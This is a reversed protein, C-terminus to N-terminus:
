DDKEDLIERIKLSIDMRSFPKHIFNLGEGLIGRHAIVNRTYGSMYLCKINPFIQSVAQALERGNMSPMVVDTILLDIKVNSPNCIRMAEEPTNATLVTYGLRELMIKVMRLISKEDEVLLITEVGKQFKEKVAVPEEDQLEEYRPIYLKFTTGQGPESYVNIFGNNQKIIGYVTALGLGTGEGQRKTTFFPEFLKNLTEKDMGCGNDSVGIFVYEGPRFGNHQRCYDDDLLINDTEITIKGVDDIADRANVCLNALIQDIQSPDIKVSWLHKKPRWLLDIDEGILRKLMKFMGDIAHNPNFIKPSVTQKRAFALLQGTLDASRLAAKKIECITSFLPSDPDIDDQVLEINGLIISLMNNFDHAVGGALRGVSEMKQAQILQQQLEEKDQEAKKQETIDRFEVTRVEKGKYPINKAELRMPFQEGNKRLGFAEYPKEYGSLINDMVMSRSQEAILQLGDMGTLEDLSYGTMDSLGQNCDIIIGKDHIGIGGFSANHLAKFRAESERLSEEVAKRDTVDTVISEIAILEGNENRIGVNRQHIWKTKDGKYLIKYEFSPDLEGKLMRVWKEKCYGYFDPHIIDRILMLNTYWTEPPVGFITESAPSVYEYKGDPLSMRYIMDTANDTLRRYKEENRKLEARTKNFYALLMGLAIVFELVAGLLYGWPAFWAVPRLFPYDVKHVGWLIYAIGVIANEKKGQNGSRLFLIGTSIYIAALFSFTPLTIFLFSFKQVTSVFVWGIIGVSLYIWVTPFKKNSYCYTGWLLMIGSVLTSLQNAILFFPSIYGKIFCLMFVFRTTYIAWSITWIGLYKKNDILYLYFYTFLLLITGIMTAIVSPLLWSM